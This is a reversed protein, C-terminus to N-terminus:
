GDMAEEERRITLAELQERRARRLAERVAEGNLVPRSQEDRRRAETQERIKRVRDAAEEVLHEPVDEWRTGNLWTAPHPIYKGNDERWKVSRKQVELAHLISEVMKAGPRLKKWAKYADGKAAKKPYAEWFRLFNEDWVLEERDVPKPKAKAGSPNHEEFNPLLVGDLRVELWGAKEMALAFSPLGAIRDIDERTAGEFFGDPAMVRATAWVQMLTAVVARTVLDTALVGRCFPAGDRRRDAHSWVSFTEEMQLFRVMRQVRPSFLLAPRMEIADVRM